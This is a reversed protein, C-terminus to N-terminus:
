SSYTCMYRRTARLALIHWIELAWLTYDDISLGRWVDPELLMSLAKTYAGQRALQTYRGAFYDHVSVDVFRIGKTLFCPSAITIM